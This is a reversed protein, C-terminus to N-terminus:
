PRDDRVPKSLAHALLVRTMRVAVKVTPWPRGTVKSTGVRVRYRVPVEAVRLGARGARLAMELPWGYGRDRLGLDLLAQRSGARYPGIDHLRIGALAGCLRGLVANAAAVHWPMAGPQRRARIRRGLVLDAEGRVVPGAVADFDDWSLSADADLFVVTSAPAAAQLGRWCAAGFGRRPEAVVEAGLARAVGATGDTSGNDVVLIRLGAPRGALAAPLADAEDLAPLIACVTTLADPHLRRPSTM